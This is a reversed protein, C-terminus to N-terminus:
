VNNMGAPYNKITNELVQDLDFESAQQLVKKALPDIVNDLAIDRIETISDYEKTVDSGTFVVYGISVFVILFAYKLM